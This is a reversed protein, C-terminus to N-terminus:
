LKGGLNQYVDWFIPYSKRVCEAGLITVPKECVTAAIAAAMAIRHDNVSDVTGGILKAPHVTLTHEDSEAKGGLATLMNCVSAVRDSEKLRLREINTFKAGKKTSAAVALIPVLDPINAADIQAFDDMKRLEAIVARDGQASNQNLNTVEVDNGMAKAALFFAANSWDGEVTLSGPSTLLHNSEVRFDDTKVGFIELAQQTMTIYPASEVKGLLTLDSAGDMLAMAFLLGSIFQSSVGADIRYSGCQLKGQCLVTNDTPRSLRCGMREMEEWMPSLPRSPLRGALHFTAEVGLAGVVPLMFRLTSGSENPNLEAKAPIVSAPVVQYGTETRTIDAGLSRLCSATAEIDDNTEPCELFTEKDAFAACILMRHAVSKSPIARVTGRLKGPSITLNM